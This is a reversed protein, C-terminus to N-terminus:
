RSEELTPPTPPKPMANRVHTYLVVCVTIGAIAVVAAAILAGLRIRKAARPAAAPEITGDPSELLSALNTRITRLPWREEDARQVLEGLGTDREKRRIVIERLMAHIASEDVAPDHHLLPSVDTLRFKGDRDVIVSSSAGLAGHVIGASHLTEVELTLERMLMAIERTPRSRDSAVDVFPEGDIFDWILWGKGFEDREVGLLAGVGM